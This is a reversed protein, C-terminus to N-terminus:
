VLGIPALFPSLGTMTYSSAQNNCDDDCSKFTQSASVTDRLMDTLLQPTNNTWPILEIM